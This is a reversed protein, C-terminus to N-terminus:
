AAGKRDFRERLRQRLAFARSKVTGAPVELVEGVEAMTCEEVSLLLLLLKDDPDLQELAQRLLSQEDPLAGPAVAERADAERAPGGSREAQAREGASRRVDIALNRAIRCLWTKASAEGRFADRGRWARLFVEQTLDDLQAPPCLRLLVSRVLGAHLDYLAAFGDPTM